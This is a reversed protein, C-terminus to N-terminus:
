ASGQQRLLCSHKYTRTYSHLRYSSRDFLGIPWLHCRWNFLNTTYTFSWIHSTLFTLSKTIGTMRAAALMCDTKTYVVNATNSRTGRRERPTWSGTFGLRGDMRRDNRGHWRFSWQRRLPRLPAPAHNSNLHECRSTVDIRLAAIGTYVALRLYRCSSPHGSGEETLKCTPIDSRFAAKWNGM